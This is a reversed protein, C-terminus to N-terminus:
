LYDQLGPEIEEFSLARRLEDGAAALDPAIGELLHRRLAEADAPSLQLEPCAPIREVAIKRGRGLPVEVFPNRYTVAPLIRPALYAVTVGVSEPCVLPWLEPAFALREGSAAFTGPPAGAEGLRAARAAVEGPSARLSLSRIFGSPTVAEHARLVPAASRRRAAARQFREKYVYSCYNIPLAIGAELAREMVRLATLESELVTANDGHVFTYGREVLKPFNHPTLRLQHLNLHQVGIRAMEGLVQELRERDEPIAPIEVTVRPIVGVALQVRDLHYSTAGIDFRIEDLGAEALRRAVGRELLTGNTYLWLHLDAGFRRKVARIYGLTRELTLLPEGGSISVGRFGFRALYELYEGAKPFPVSNTMPAGSGQQPAPCYFCRTNCRENIFLCSWSGAVCIECGPSLAGSQLKTGRCSSTAREGIRALIADRERIAARAEAPTPFRLREYGAGYVQRARQQLERRRDSEPM